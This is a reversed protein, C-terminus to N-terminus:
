NRKSMLGILKNQIKWGLYHDSIEKRSIRRLHEVMLTDFKSIMEILGLFKGRNKTYAKSSTDRFADNHEALYQVCAIISKLVGPSHQKEANIQRQQFNDITKEYRLRKQLELIQMQANGHASSAEHDKLRMGM